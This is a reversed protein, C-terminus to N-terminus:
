RVFFGMERLPTSPPSPEVGTPAAPLTFTFTSGEGPVGSSEVWIRGGMAEVQLRCMYLGVGTGRVPGAIDRPLRVFRNFLKSADRPPIGNGYDRVSVQIMAGAPEQAQRQGFGSTEPSDSALLAGFIELPSGPMSYKLANSILNTLVQRLRLEDALAVLSPEISVRVDRATQAFGGVGPEGIERPDYTELVTTVLTAIRVPSRDLEIPGREMRSTDLVSTLLQLVGDGSRLARGLLQDRQEPTAREGLSRLLEINGYLAMIPTRLEHNADVIFQDKLATLERERDLARATTRADALASSASIWTLAATLTLLACLFGAILFRVSEGASTTTRLSPALPMVHVTVVVLAICAGLMPALAARPLVLGALIIFLTLMSLMLVVREDLGDPNDLVNNVTLVMAGTVYMAGALITRRRHNVLLTLLGLAITLDLTLLVTSPAHGFYAWPLAVVLQLATLTFVLLRLLAHKRERENEEFSTHVIADPDTAFPTSFISRVYSLTARISRWVRANGSRNVAM